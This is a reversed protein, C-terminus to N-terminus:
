VVGGDWGGGVGTVKGKSGAESSSMKTGNTTSLDGTGRVDHTFDHTRRTASANKEWRAGLKPWGRRPRKHVALVSRKKM